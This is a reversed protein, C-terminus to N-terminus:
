KAFRARVQAEFEASKGRPISLTQWRPGALMRALMVIQGVHGAAHTLARQTAEIVSHPERRITVTRELDAPTLSELTGLVAAWGTEWRAMLAARTDAPDLEFETDRRRDPKEGDATLFDTWRSRLNGALHKVLIALSNADPAPARFFEEDSVQVLAREAQKRLARFDKAAERLYAAGDM